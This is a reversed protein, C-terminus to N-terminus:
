TIVARVFVWKDQTERRSRSSEQLCRIRETGVQEMLMMEARWLESLLHMPSAITKKMTIWGDTNADAAEGLSLARGSSCRGGAWQFARQLYNEM